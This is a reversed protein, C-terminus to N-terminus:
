TFMYDNDETSQVKREAPILGDQNGASVYYHVHVSHSM